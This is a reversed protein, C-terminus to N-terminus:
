PQRRPVRHPNPIRKFTRALAEAVTLPLTLQLVNSADYLVCFTHHHGTGPSRVLRMRYGVSEVSSALAAEDEYSIIAHPFRGSLALEDVSLGPAFQVSFGYLGSVLRHLAYGNILDQTKAEGARVVWAM